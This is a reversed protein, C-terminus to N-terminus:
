TTITGTREKKDLCAIEPRVVFSLAGKKDATLKVAMVNDPYSTFYARTYSVGDKKYSVYAIAESINLSRRCNQVNGHNLDLYLEALSTAGGKNYPGKNHLSKETIQIRETDVRGFLNAGIYGNGIPYSWREWDQDFPMGRSVVKDWDPGNNPAPQEEWIEHMM